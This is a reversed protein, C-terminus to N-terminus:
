GEAELPIQVLDNRLLLKVVTYSNHNLNAQGINDIIHYKILDKRLNAAGGRAEDKTNAM